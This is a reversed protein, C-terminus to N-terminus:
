LDCQLLRVCGEFDITSNINRLYGIIAEATTYDRIDAEEIDFFDDYVAPIYDNVGLTLLQDDSLPVGNEDVIQFDNNRDDVNIGTFLFREGSDCFFSEFEGVTKTFAISGNNFPDMTFIEFRTIPGQNIGARIGGLNQITFDVGMYERLATTYFCGVDWSQHNFDSQGVVTALSPNDNYSAITEELAADTQLASNLNIMSVTAKTVTQDEISLAIKGLLQLNSGAQVVPIDNVREDILEHSHGGIILDFFPANRALARDAESGLHTLAVLVDANEQAKLGSFNDVVDEHQQFSLDSVRYPHTSPIIDGEKGNTEVLGLFTVRLDGVSLTVYPDPQSVASGSADMNALIWPFQSQDVRDKLVDPGFDFEHNGLVGVDFGTRNMIDIMPFGRESYQDVIPNGAFIDGASVLLVNGNAKAEDVIAKVKAFNNIRGHQDNVFFITLDTENNQSPGVFGSDPGCGLLTLFLLSSIVLSVRLNVKM